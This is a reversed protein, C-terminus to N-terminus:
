DYKGVLKPWEPEDPISWFERFEDDVEPVILTNIRIILDEDAPVRDRYTWGGCHSVGKEPPLAPDFEVVCKERRLM